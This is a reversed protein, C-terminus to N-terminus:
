WLMEKRVIKNAKVILKCVYHNENDKDILIGVFRKNSEKDYTSKIEGSVEIFEGKTVEIDTPIYATFSSDNVLITVATTKGSKSPNIEYIYGQICTNAQLAESSVSKKSKSM